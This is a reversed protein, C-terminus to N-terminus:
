TAHCIGLLSLICFCINYDRRTVIIYGGFTAWSIESSGNGDFARVNRSIVYYIFPAYKRDDKMETSNRETKNWKVSMDNFSDAYFAHLFNQRM